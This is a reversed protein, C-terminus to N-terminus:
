NENLSNEVGVEFVAHPFLPQFMSTYHKHKTSRRPLGPAIQTKLKM